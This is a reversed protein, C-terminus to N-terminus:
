NAGVTATRAAEAGFEGAVSHADAAALAKHVGRSLASASCERLLQPSSALAAQTTSAISLASM